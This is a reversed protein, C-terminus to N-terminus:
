QLEGGIDPLECRKLFLLTYEYKNDGFIEGGRTAAVRLQCVVRRECMM